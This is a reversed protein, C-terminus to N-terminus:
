IKKKISLKNKIIYLIDIKIWFHWKQVNKSWFLAGYALFPVTHLFSFFIDFDLEM